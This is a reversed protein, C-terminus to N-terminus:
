FDGMDVEAMAILHDMAGRAGEVDRAAIADRLVRHEPVADRLDVGGRGVRERKFRTTWRVAAGISSALTAFTENGSADLLAAHFDRDAAQGEPTDLGHHEMAMLAGDIAALQADSRRQAAMAAAAPEIVRRLEFLDTVFRPDPRSAFMWELLDPDLMAWRRRATVHTGARPRSELLGKAILIRIAERYATRSVGAADAEEIEGGLGSGPPLEGSLIATGIRRALAEHLRIARPKPIRPV